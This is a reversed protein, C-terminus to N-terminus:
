IKGQLTIYITGLLDHLEGCPPIEPFERVSVKYGEPSFCLTCDHEGFMQIVVNLRGYRSPSIGKEDWAVLMAHYHRLNTALVFEVFWKNVSSDVRHTIEEEDAYVNAYREIENRQMEAYTEALCIMDSVSHASKNREFVPIHMAVFFSPHSFHFLFVTRNPL